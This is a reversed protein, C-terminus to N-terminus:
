RPGPFCRWMLCQMARRVEADEIRLTARKLVGAADDVSAMLTLRDAVFLLELPRLEDSQALRLLEARAFPTARLSSAELLDLRMAPDSTTRLEAAALRQGHEGLNGLLRLMWRRAPLGKVEGTELAARERLLLAAESSPIRAISEFISVREALSTARELTVRRSLVALTRECLASDSALAPELAGMALGLFEPSGEALMELTRDIATRDSQRILLGLCTSAILPDPALAGARLAGNLEASGPTLANIARLRVETNSDNTAVEALESSLGAASLAAVAMERRWVEPARAQARLFDRAQPDGLRAAPATLLAHFREPASARFERARRAVQADSSRALAQCFVDWHSQAFGSTMWDLYIQSTRVPDIAHMTTAIKMKNEISASEFVTLVADLDEPRGHKGLAQVAQVAVGEFQGDLLRLLVARAQPANSRQCVEVANRLPGYGDKDNLLRDVIRSVLEIGQAGRAALEERSRRLADRDGHLLMETLIGDVNSTDVDYHEWKACPALLYNVRPDAALATDAGSSEVPTTPALNPAPGATPPAQPSPRDPGCGALLATVVLGLAFPGSRPACTM